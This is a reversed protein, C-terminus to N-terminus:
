VHQINNQSISFFFIFLRIKKFNVPKVTADKAKLPEWSCRIFGEAFFGLTKNIAISSM